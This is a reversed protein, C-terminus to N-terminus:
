RRSSRRAVEDQEGGVKCRRFGRRSMALYVPRDRARARALADGVEHLDALVDHARGTGQVGCDDAAVELEVADDGFVVADLDQM